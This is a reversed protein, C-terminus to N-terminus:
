SRKMVLSKLMKLEQHDFSRFFVIVVLMYVVAGGVVALLLSLLDQPYLFYVLGAMIGSAAVSKIIFDWHLSFKIYKFSVSICVIVMVLYSLTTAIAAGLIGIMPILLVNLVVNIV